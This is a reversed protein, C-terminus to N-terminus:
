TQVGPATAPHFPRSGAHRRPRRPHTRRGGRLSHFAYGDPGGCASASGHPTLQLLDHSFLMGAYAPSCESEARPSGGGVEDVLELSEDGALSSSAIARLPSRARLGRAM